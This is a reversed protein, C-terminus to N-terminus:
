AEGEKRYQNPTFGFRKKFERIFYNPDEYGVGYAIDSINDNSVLLRRAATTLRLDRLYEMPAKGTNQKFLATFRQKSLNAMDAMKEITYKETPNLIVYDVVEQIRPDTRYLGGKGRRRLEELSASAKPELYELGADSTDFEPASLTGILINLYGGIFCKKAAHNSKVWKYIEKFYFDEGTNETIRPIGYFRKLLDEGEYVVSTTFRISYFEFSDSTSRCSMRCGIPIYIIQNEKVEIKEGNIFFEASGKCIYRFMNYPIVAEPFYWEKGMTYKDIYLFIFRINDLASM